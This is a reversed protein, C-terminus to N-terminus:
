PCVSCQSASLLLSRAHALWMKAGDPGGKWRPHQRSWKVWAPGLESANPSGGPLAFHQRLHIWHPPVNPFDNPLDAGVQHPGLSSGLDLELTVVVLDGQRECKHGLAQIGSIFRDAGTM